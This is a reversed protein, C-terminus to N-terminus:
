SSASTGGTSTADGAGAFAADPSLSGSTAALVLSAPSAGTADESGTEADFSSSAEINESTNPAVLIVTTSSFLLGM